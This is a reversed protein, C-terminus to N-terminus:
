TLGTLYTTSLQVYLCYVLFPSIQISYQISGYPHGYVAKLIMWVAVHWPEVVVSVLTYLKM